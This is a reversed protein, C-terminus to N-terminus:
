LSCSQQMIARIHFCGENGERAGEKRRKELVLARMEKQGWEETSLKWVIEWEWSEISLKKEEREGEEEWGRGQRKELAPKGRLAFV